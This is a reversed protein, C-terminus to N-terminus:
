GKEWRLANVQALSLNCVEMLFKPPTWIAATSNTFDGYAQVYSPIWDLTEKIVSKVGLQSIYSEMGVPVHHIYTRNPLSDCLKFYDRTHVIMEHWVEDADRNLPIFSVRRNSALTLFKCVEDFEEAVQTSPRNRM